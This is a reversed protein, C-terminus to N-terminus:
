IVMARLIYPQCSAQLARPVQTFTYPRVEINFPENGLSGKILEDCSQLIEIAQSEENKDFLCLCCITLHLKREKIFMKDVIQPGRTGQTSQFM